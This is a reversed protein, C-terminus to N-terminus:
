QYPGALGESLRGADVRLWSGAIVRLSLPRLTVMRVSFRFAGRARVNALDSDELYVGRHRNLPGAWDSGNSGSGACRAIMAALERRETVAAAM